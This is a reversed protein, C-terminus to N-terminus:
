HSQKTAALTQAHALWLRNAKAVWSIVDGYNRKEGGCNYKSLPAACPVTATVAEHGDYANDLHTALGWNLNDSSSDTYNYWIMGIYPFNGATTHATQLMQTM